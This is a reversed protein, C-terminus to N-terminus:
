FLFLFYLFIFLNLIDWHYWVLVAESTQSAYAISIKRFKNFTLCPTNINARILPTCHEPIVMIHILSLLACCLLISDSSVNRDAMLM